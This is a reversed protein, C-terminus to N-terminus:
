QHALANCLADYTTCLGLTHIALIQQKPGAVQDYDLTTCPYAHTDQRIM